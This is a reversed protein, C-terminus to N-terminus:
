GPVDRRLASGRGDASHHESPAGRFSHRAEPACSRAGRVGRPFSHDGQSGRLRREAAIGAAGSGLVARHGRKWPRAARQPHIPGPKPTAGANLVVVNPKIERLLRLAVDPDIADGAIAHVRGGTARVLESADGRSLAHVEAGARVLAEAIGRGFGRSAGVVVARIGKMDTM